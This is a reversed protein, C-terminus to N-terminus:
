RPRCTSLLWVPQVSERRMDLWCTRTKRFGHAGLCKRFDRVIPEDIHGARVPRLLTARVPQKPVEPLEGRVHGRPHEFESDRLHTERSSGTTSTM